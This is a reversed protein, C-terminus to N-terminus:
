QLAVLCHCQGGINKVNLPGLPLSNFLKGSFKMGGWSGKLDGRILLTPAFFERPCLSVFPSVFVAWINKIKCFMEEVSSQQHGTNLGDRQFQCGFFTICVTGRYNADLSISITYLGDRQLSISGSRGDTNYDADLFNFKRLIWVTGRYSADFFNFRRGTNPAWSLRGLGSLRSRLLNFNFNADTHVLTM